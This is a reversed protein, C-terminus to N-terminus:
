EFLHTKLDRRFQDSPYAVRQLCVLVTSLMSTIFFPRFACDTCRAFDANFGVFSTSVRSIVDAYADTTTNHEIPRLDSYYNYSLFVLIRLTSICIKYVVAMNAVLCKTFVIRADWSRSSRDVDATPLENDNAHLQRISIRLFQLSTV